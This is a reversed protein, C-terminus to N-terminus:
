IIYKHMRTSVFCFFLIRLIDIIYTMPSILDFYVCVLFFFFLQHWIDFYSLYFNDCHRQDCLIFLLCVHVQERNNCYKKKTKKKVKQKLYLSLTFKYFYIICPTSPHGRIKLLLIKIFYCQILFCVMEVSHMLWQFKFNNFIYWRNRWQYQIIM